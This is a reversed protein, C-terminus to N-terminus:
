KQVLIGELLMNLLNDVYRNTDFGVDISYIKWLIVSQFISNYCMVALSRINMDKVVGKEIQIKFFEELREIIFLSVELMLSKNDSSERVEEMALRLIDFDSEDLVLIGFFTIKLFEEIDEDEAYDFADELKYMLLKLYYEKTAKILNNKNIFKRFITVESFGSEAAIKKTSANSGERQLLALTAKMIKLSTEDIDEVM